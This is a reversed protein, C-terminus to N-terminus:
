HGEMGFYPKFAEQLEPSLANFDIRQNWLERRLREPSGLARVLRAALDRALQQLITVPTQNPDRVDFVERAPDGGCQNGTITYFGGQSDLDYIGQGPEAHRRRFQAALVYYTTAADKASAVIWARGTWREDDSIQDCLARIDEPLPDLKLGAMEMRLGLVPEQLYRPPSKGSTAEAQRGSLTFLSAALLLKIATYPM